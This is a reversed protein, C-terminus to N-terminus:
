RPIVLDLLALLLVIVGAVVLDRRTPKLLQFGKPGKKAFRAEDRGTLLVELTRVHNEGTRLEVWGEFEEVLFVTGDARHFRIGSFNQVWLRGDKVFLLKASAREADMTREDM